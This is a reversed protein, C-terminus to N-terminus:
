GCGNKLLLGQTLFIDDFHLPRNQFVKGVGHKTHLKFILVFKQTMDRSAHALMIDTDERTVFHRDLQGGVVKGFTSNGVPMFLRQVCWGM